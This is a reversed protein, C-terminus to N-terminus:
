QILAFCALAEVYVLNTRRHRHYYSRPCGIVCVQTTPCLVGDLSDTLQGDLHVSFVGEETRLNFQVTKERRSLSCVTGSLVIFSEM